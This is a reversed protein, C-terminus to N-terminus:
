ETGNQLYERMRNLIAVQDPSYSGRWEDNRDPALYGRIWADKRSVDAWQDYPRTDGSTEYSRQDMRQQWPVRSNWLEERMAHFNPDTEPMAHLADGFLAQRLEGQNQLLRPDFVDILTQGPTPNHAEDKPYFELSGRNGPPPAPNFRAQIDQNQLRPYGALAADMDEQLSVPPLGRPITGLIDALGAV